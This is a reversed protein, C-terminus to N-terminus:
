AAPAEAAAAPEYYLVMPTSSGDEMTLKLLGDDLLEATCTSSTNEATSEMRLIGDEFTAALALMNFMSAFMDVESSAIFEVTGEGLKLNPFAMGIASLDAVAGMVETYKVTWEGYFDEAQADTRPAGVTIPAAPERGFRLEMGGESMVLEEGTITATAPSDQVTLTLTDGERTWTGTQSNMAGDEGPATMSMTGDANITLTMTVGMFSAYWDGTLDTEEAFAPVMMCAMCLILLLSILKKM